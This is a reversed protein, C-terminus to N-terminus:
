IGHRPVGCARQRPLSACEVLWRAGGKPRSIRLRRVGQAPAHLLYASHSSSIGCQCGYPSMCRHSAISGVRRPMDVKLHLCGSEHGDGQGAATPWCAIHHCVAARHGVTTQVPMRKVRQTADTTRALTWHYRQETRGCSTLPRSDWHLPAGHPPSLITHVPNYRAERQGESTGRMDPQASCANAAKSRRRRARQSTSPATGPHVFPNNNSDSHLGTATGTLRCARTSSPCSARPGM